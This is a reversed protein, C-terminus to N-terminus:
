DSGSLGYVAIFRAHHLCCALRYPSSKRANPKRCDGECQMRHAMAHSMPAVITGLQAGPIFHRFEYNSGRAASIKVPNRKTTLTSIRALAAPCRAMAVLMPNRGDGAGDM